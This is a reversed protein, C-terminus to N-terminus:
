GRDAHIGRLVQPHVLAELRLGTALRFTGVNEDLCRVALEVSRAVGLQNLTRHRGIAVITLAQWASELQTAEGSECLTPAAALMGRQLEVAQALGQARTADRADCDVTQEAHRMP